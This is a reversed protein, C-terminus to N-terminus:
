FGPCSGWFSSSCCYWVAASQVWGAMLEAGKGPAHAALLSLGSAGPLSSARSEGDSVDGAGCCRPVSADDAWSKPMVCVCLWRWVKGPTHAPGLALWCTLSLAPSSSRSCGSAPSPLSVLPAGAWRHRRAYSLCDPSNWWKWSGAMWFSGTSVGMRSVCDSTPCLKANPKVLFRKAQSFKYKPILSVYVAM